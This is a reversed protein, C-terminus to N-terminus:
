ANNWHFLLGELTSGNMGVFEYWFWRKTVAPVHKPAAIIQGPLYALFGIIDLVCKVTLGALAASVAARRHFTRLWTPASM